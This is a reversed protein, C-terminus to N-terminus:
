QRPVHSYRRPPQTIAMLSIAGGAGTRSGVQVPVPPPPSPPTVSWSSSVPRVDSSWCGIVDMVAEMRGAAAAPDSTYVGYFDEHFIVKM